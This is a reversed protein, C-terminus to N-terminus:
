DSASGSIEYVGDILQPTERQLLMDADIAALASALLFYVFVTNKM